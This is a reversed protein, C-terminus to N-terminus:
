QGRQNNLQQALGHNTTTRARNSLNNVVEQRLQVESNPQPAYDYKIASAPIESSEKDMFTHNLESIVNAPHNARDEVPIDPIGTILGQKELRPIKPAWYDQAQDESLERGDIYGPVLYINDGVKIGTSKVTTLEGHKNRLVRNNKINSYHWNNIFDVYPKISEPSYNM